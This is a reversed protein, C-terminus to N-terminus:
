TGENYQQGLLGQGGIAAGAALPVALLGKNKIFEQMVKERTSGTKKARKDARVRLLEMFTGMSSDAVNTRDAGGMWLNAQFQPGTMGNAKAIENIYDEFAKYENDNPMEAYMAPEKTYDKMNTVGDDMARKADFRTIDNGVTDTTRQIYDDVKNGYKGRLEKEFKQSMDSSNKIWSPDGSAMAMYRTFHLDAAINNNSGLLSAKFGKPKPNVSATSDTAKVKGQPLPEWEGKQQRSIAMEQGGAAYHGYTPERGAALRRGEPLNVDGQIEKAYQPDTAVRRRAASANGLNQDVKSAPSTAGVLEVFEKWESHGKKEGLEQVFWDRLEETNYWDNGGLQEGRKVDAMMQTMLGNRDNRLADIASETRASVGKAPQHRLYSYESRDPAAGLYRPDSGADIDYKSPAPPSDGLLGKVGAKVGKRATAGLIGPLLESAGLAASGLGYAAMDGYNGAQRSQAMQRGMQAGDHLGAGPFMGAATTPAIDPKVMWDPINLGARRMAMFPNIDGDLLGM